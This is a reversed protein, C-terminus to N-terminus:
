LDAALNVIAQLEASEAWAAPAAHGPLSGDGFLGHGGGREEGGALSLLVGIV